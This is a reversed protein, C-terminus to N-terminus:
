ALAEEPIESEPVDQLLSVTKTRPNYSMYNSKQETIDGSFINLLRGDKLQFNEFLCNNFTAQKCNRIHNNGTSDVLVLDKKRFFDQAAVAEAESLQGQLNKDFVFASPRAIFLDTSLSSASTTSLRFDSFDTNEFVFGECNFYSYLDKTSLSTNNKNKPDFKWANVPHGNPWITKDNYHLSDSLNFISAGTLDAGSLEIGEV